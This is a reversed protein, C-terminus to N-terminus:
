FEGARGVRTTSNGGPAFAFGATLALPTGTDFRHALVGRFGVEGRFVATNAAWSTRGPESPMPTTTMAAVSAVGSNAQGASAQATEATQQATAATAVATDAAGSAADAGYGFASNDSNAGGNNIKSDVGCRTNQAPADQADCPLPDAAWAPQTSIAAVALIASGLGALQMNNM